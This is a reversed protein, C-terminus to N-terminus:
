SGGGEGEKGEKEGCVSKLKKKFDEFLLTLDFLLQNVIFGVLNSVAPM